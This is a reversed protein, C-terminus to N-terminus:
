RKEDFEITVADSGQFNAIEYHATGKEERKKMTIKMAHSSTTVPYTKGDEEHMSIYVVKRPPKALFSGELTKCDIEGEDCHLQSGDKLEIHVDNKLVIKEPEVRKSEQAIPLLFVEARQCRLTGFSHQICVNQSLHIKKRDYDVSAAQVNWKEGYVQLPMLLFVLLSIPYYM